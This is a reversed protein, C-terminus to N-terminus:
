SFRPGAGGWLPPTKRQGPSAENRYPFLTEPGKRAPARREALMSLVSQDKLGRERPRANTPHGIQASNEGQIQPLIGARSLIDIVRSAAEQAPKPTRERPRARAPPFVVKDVNVFDERARARGPLRKKPGVFVRDAQFAATM